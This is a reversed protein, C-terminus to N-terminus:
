KGGAEIHPITKYVDVTTIKYVDDYKTNMYELLGHNYDDDRFEKTGYDGLVFFDKAPNLTFAGTKDELAFWAKQKLYQIGDAYCEKNAKTLPIHLSVSDASELGSTRINSGKNIQVEVGTLVTSHWIRTGKTKDEQFNFVTVTDNFM